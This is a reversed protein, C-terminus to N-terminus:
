SFLSHRGAYRENKIFFKWLVSLKIKIMAYQVLRKHWGCRLLLTQIDGSTKKYNEKNQFVRLLEYECARILKRFFRRKRYHVPFDDFMTSTMALIDPINKGADIPCEMNHRRCFASVLACFVYVSVMPHSSLRDGSHRRLLYLPEKIFRIIHKERFRFGMDTDEASIFFPRFGNMSAIAERKYFAQNMSPFDNCDRLPMGPYSVTIPQKMFKPLLTGDPNIERIMPIVAGCDSYKHMFEMSKELRQSHSIDDDDQFAIFKGTAQRMANNRAESSGKNDQCMFRIRPERECYEDVIAKPDGITSGDDM